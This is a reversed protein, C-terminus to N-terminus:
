SGGGKTAMTSRSAAEQEGLRRRFAMFALATAIDVFAWVTRDMRAFAFCMGILVFAFSWPLVPRIAALVYLVIVIVAGRLAMYYVYPLPLVAVVLMGAIVALVDRLDVSLTSRSTM